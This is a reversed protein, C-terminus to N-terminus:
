VNQLIGTTLVFKSTNTKAEITECGKLTLDQLFILTCSNKLFNEQDSFENM